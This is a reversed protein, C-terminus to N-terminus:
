RRPSVFEISNRDSHMALMLLWGTAPLRPRRDTLGKCRSVRDHGHHRILAQSKDAARNCAQLRDHLQPGRGPVLHAGRMGPGADGALGPVLQRNKGVAAVPMRWFHDRRQAPQEFPRLRGAM